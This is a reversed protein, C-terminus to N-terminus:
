IIGMARDYAKIPDEKISKNLLIDFVITSDDVMVWKMNNEFVYFNNDSTNYWLDGPEPAYPPIDNCSNNM